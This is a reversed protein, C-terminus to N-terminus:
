SECHCHKSMIDLGTYAYGEAGHEGEHADTHCEGTANTLSCVISQVDGLSIALKELECEYRLVGLLRGRGRETAVYALLLTVLLVSEM